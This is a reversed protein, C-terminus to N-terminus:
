DQNKNILRYACLIQPNATITNNYSCLQMKLPQHMISNVKKRNTQHPHPLNIYNAHIKPFLSSTENRRSRNALSKLGLPFHTGIQQQELTRERQYQIRGGIKTSRVVRREWGEVKSISLWIGIEFAEFSLKNLEPYLHTKEPIIITLTCKKNTKISKIM